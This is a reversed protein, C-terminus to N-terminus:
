LGSPFTISAPAVIPRGIELQIQAHATLPIQRPDGLFRQRNYFAVVPGRLPGIRNRNLAQGWIDFFDGLTYIRRVPSEIHVIGDAAHTHLWYFCSGNSVFAGGPAPSSQPDVIGIGGPIQRPLGGAFVTLHAHIHFVLQEGALCSIGDVTHGDAPASRAALQPGQAIPV